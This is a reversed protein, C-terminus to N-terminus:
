YKKVGHGKKRVVRGRRLGKEPCRGRGKRRGRGSISKGGTSGQVKPKFSGGTTPKTSKVMAVKKVTENQTEYGPLIEHSDAEVNHGSRRSRNGDDSISLTDDSLIGMRMDDTYECNPGYFKDACFCIEYIAKNSTIAGFNLCTGYNLCIRDTCQLITNAALLLDAHWKLM